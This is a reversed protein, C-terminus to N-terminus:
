GPLDPAREGRIRAPEAPPVAASKGDPPAVAASEADPPAVAASERDAPAVAPGAKVSGIVRAVVASKSVLVAGLAVLGLALAFVVTEAVTNGFSEDAVVPAALVPVLTEMVFLVPGVQVAPRTQLATMESSVAVLSAVATAGLWGALAIWRGDSLANALLKNAIAGWGYALGATVAIVAPSVPRLTRLLYPAVAALGLVTLIAVAPLGLPKNVKPDLPAVLALALVGVVIAVVGAVEQRGVHEGPVRLGVVLLVLLGVVLTPQVVTLPALLLAITQLPWGLLTLGTGALWRRRRMLRLLLSARLGHELPQERAELGQLVIGGNFFISALVAALIGVATM